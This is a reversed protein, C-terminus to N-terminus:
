SGSPSAVSSTQTEPVLATVMIFDNGNSHCGTCMAYGNEAVTIKDPTDTKEAKFWYWGKGGDSDDQTKIDVVWGTHEDGTYTEKVSAAGNPHVTNGAAMSAALIDNLFIKVRKHPSASDHVVADHAWESYNGEQLWTLLAVKETPIPPPAPPAVPDAAVPLDTAAPQEAAPDKATQADAKPAAPCGTLLMAGFLLIVSLLLITTQFKVDRVDKKNRAANKLPPFFRDHPHPFTYCWM